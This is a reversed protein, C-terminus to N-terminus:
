KLAPAQLCQVRSSGGLGLGQRSRQHGTPRHKSSRAPMKRVKLAYPFFFGFSVYLGMIIHYNGNEKGNDRYLGWIVRIDKFSRLSEWSLSELNNPCGPM